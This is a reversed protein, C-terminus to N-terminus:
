SNAKLKTETAWERKLTEFAPHGTGGDCACVTDNRNAGCQLCLGLCEGDTCVFQMPEALITYQRLAEGLDITHQEDITFAEDDALSLTAGTAIDVVALFEESFNVPQTHTFPSLCRACTAPVPIEYEATVLLGADTRLLDATGTVGTPPENSSTWVQQRAGVPEKLLQSVNFRM